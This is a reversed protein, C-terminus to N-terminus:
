EVGEEGVGVRPQEDKEVVKYIVNRARSVALAKGEHKVIAFGLGELNVVDGIKIDHRVWDGDEDHVPYDEWPGIALVKFAQVDPRKDMAFPDHNDPLALGSPKNIIPELIMWDQTPVLKNM